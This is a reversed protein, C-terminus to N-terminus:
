GVCGGREEATELEGEAEMDRLHRRGGLHRGEEGKGREVVPVRRQHKDDDETDKGIEDFVMTATM